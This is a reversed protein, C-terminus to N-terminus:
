NLEDFYEKASFAQMTEFLKVRDNWIEFSGNFTLRLEKKGQKAYLHTQTNKYDLLENIDIPFQEIVEEPTLRNCISVPDFYVHFLAHDPTEPSVCILEVSEIGPLHEIQHKIIAKPSM